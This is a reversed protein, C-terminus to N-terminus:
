FVAVAKAPSLWLCAAAPVSDFGASATKARGRGQRGLGAHLCAHSRLSGVKVEDGSPDPHQGTYEGAGDEAEEEMALVPHAAVAGVAAPQRPETVDGEEAQPKEIEREGCCSCLEGELAMIKDDSAPGENHAGCRHRDAAEEGCPSLRQPM